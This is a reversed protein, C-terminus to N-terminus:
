VESECGEAFLIDGVRGALGEVGYAAAYAACENERGGVVAGVQRVKEVDELDVSVHGQQHSAAGGREHAAAELSLRLTAKGQKEEVQRFAGEVAVGETCVMDSLAFCIGMDPM